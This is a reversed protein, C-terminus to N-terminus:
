SGATGSAPWTLRDPTAVATGIAAALAMGISQFALPLCYGRNDPVEFFMAPYGNFNGGDPVIVRERPLMRDLAITLTRPDIRTDDSTDDYPGDQWRRGTKIRDAVAPSRYRPKAIGRGTLEKAVALATTACDGQIGLDAPQHRGIADLDLDIQAVTTTSSGILWSPPPASAV